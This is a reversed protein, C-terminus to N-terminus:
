SVKPVNNVLPFMPSMKVILRRPIEVVWQFLLGKQASNDVAQCM